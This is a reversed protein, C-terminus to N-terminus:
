LTLEMKIDARKFESEGLPVEKFGLRRYLDIATGSGKTNSFLIIKKAGLDVLQKLSHEAMKQGIQMGRYDEDVAMKIMEYVGETLYLYGCTGVPYDNCLAMYIKGGNKLVHNEPDELTILDEEELEFSKTIWKENIVKFRPQHEKRYNVIKIESIQKETNM